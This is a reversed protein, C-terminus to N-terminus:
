TFLIHQQSEYFTQHILAQHKKNACTACVPDTKYMENECKWM